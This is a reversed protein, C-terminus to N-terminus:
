YIIYLRGIFRVDLVFLLCVSFNHYFPLWCVKSLALPSPIILSKVKLLCRICMDRERKDASLLRRYIPTAWISSSDRMKEGIQNSLKM